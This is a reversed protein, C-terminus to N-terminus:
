KKDEELAEQMAKLPDEEPADTAAAADPDAPDATTSSAGNGEEFPAELEPMPGFRVRSVRPVPGTEAVLDIGYSACM